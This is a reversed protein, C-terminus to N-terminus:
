EGNLHWSNGSCMSQYVATVAARICAESTSATGPFAAVSIGAEALVNPRRNGAAVFVPINRAMLNEIADMLRQTFRDRVTAGRVGIPIAVAMVGDLSALIEPLQLCPEIWRIAPAFAEVRACRQMLRGHDSNPDDVIAIIACM